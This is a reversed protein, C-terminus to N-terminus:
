YPLDMDIGGTANPGIHRGMSDYIHVDVPSHIILENFSEYYEWEDISFLVGDFLCIECPIGILELDDYKFNLVPDSQKHLQFPIENYLVMWKSGQKLLLFWEEKEIESFGNPLIRMGNHSYLYWKNGKM